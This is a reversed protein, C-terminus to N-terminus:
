RCAIDCFSARDTEALLASGGLAPHTVVGACQRLVRSLLPGPVDKDLLEEM